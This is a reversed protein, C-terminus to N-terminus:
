SCVYLYPNKGNDDITYSRLLGSKVYYAKSAVAGPVQLVHNKNVEKLSSKNGEFYKEIPIDKNDWFESKNM